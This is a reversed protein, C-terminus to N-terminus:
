HPLAWIIQWLLALAFLTFTVNTGVMYTLIELRREIRGLRDSKGDM